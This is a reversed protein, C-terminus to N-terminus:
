TRPAIWWVWPSAGCADVLLCIPLSYGEGWGVLSESPADHAGEAPKPASGWHFVFKTYELRWRVRRTALYRLYKFICFLLLIWSEGYNELFVKGPKEQLM